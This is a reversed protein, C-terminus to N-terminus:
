ARRQRVMPTVLGSPGVALINRSGALVHLVLSSPIMLTGNFGDGWLAAVEEGAALLTSCWAVEPRIVAEDETPIVADELAAMGATFNQVGRLYDMIIKAGQVTLPDAAETM